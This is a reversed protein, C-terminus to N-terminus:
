EGNRSMKSPDDARKLRSQCISIFTSCHFTANKLILYIKRYDSVAVSAENKILSEETTTVKGKENIKDLSLSVRTNAERTLLEHEAYALLLELKGHCGCMVQLAKDIVAPNDLQALYSKENYDEVTKLVDYIEEEVLNVTDESEFLKKIDFVNM